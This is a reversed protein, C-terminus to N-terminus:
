GNSSKRGPTRNRTCVTGNRLSKTCHRTRCCRIENKSKQRMSRSRLAVQKELRAQTKNLDRRDGASSKSAAQSAMAKTPGASKGDHKSGLEESSEKISEFEQAKEM